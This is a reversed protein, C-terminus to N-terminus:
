AISRCTRDLTEIVDRGNTEEVHYAIQKGNITMNRRQALLIAARFM